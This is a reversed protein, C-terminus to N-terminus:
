RKAHPCVSRADCYKECRVYRGKRHEVSLTSKDKQRDIWALADSESMHDEAKFVAKAKKQGKKVVAWAEGRLWREEDTCRNICDAGAMKIRPRHLEAREEIFAETKEKSWVEVPFEFVRKEPYRKPDRLYASEVWDRFFATIQLNDVKYGNAEAMYKYINLQQIWEDKVGLMFSWVSTFKNDYITNNYYMDMTGSITLEGVRCEMPVELEADDINDELYKHLAKGFMIQLRDTCDIELEKEHRDILMRMYPPSLLETVSFDGTKSYDDAALVKYYPDSLNTKNTIIM